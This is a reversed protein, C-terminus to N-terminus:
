KTEEYSVSRARAVAVLRGQENWTRIEFVTTASRHRTSTREEQDIIRAIQWLQEGPSVPELWRWESGGDILREYQQPRELGMSVATVLPDPCLATPALLGIPRSM